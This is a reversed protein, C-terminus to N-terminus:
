AFRCPDGVAIAARGDPALRPVANQGFSAGGTRANRRIRSLTRLPEGGTRIGRDPDVTTVACRDCPKVLDLVVYGLDLARHADEARATVGEVVLNPRFRRMEVHDESAEALAENVEALSGTTTVLLPYGDAFGTHSGPPAFTPDCPRVSEPPFRVLRVARGLFTELAADVPPSPALATVEDRWIKVALPEGRADQPLAFSGEGPVALRLHEADVGVEIRALSPYERQTLFRRTRADVIMWRRDHDLGM